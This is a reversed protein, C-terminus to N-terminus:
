MSSLATRAIVQRLRQALVEPLGPLKLNIFGRTLVSVADDRTIGRTMLYEVADEAVPGIAAEHSLQCGPASEAVLEPVTEIAARQSLLMGRCDLHGRSEDHKGVLTGRLYIRSRDQALARSISEARAGRGVLEIHAGLDVISDGLGVVISHLQARANEGELSM